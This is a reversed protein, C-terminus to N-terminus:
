RAVVSFRRFRVPSPRAQGDPFRAHSAKHDQSRFWSLFLERSDWWSVMAYSGPAGTDAWVELAQFGDWDEVAGLRSRFATELDAAGEPAVQLESFAVFANSRSDPDPRREATEPRVGADTM